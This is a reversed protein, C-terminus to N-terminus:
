GSRITTDKYRFSDPTPSTWEQYYLRTRLLGFGGAAFGSHVLRIRKMIGSFGFQYRTPDLADILVPPPLETPQPRADGTM